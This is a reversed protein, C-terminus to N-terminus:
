ALPALGNMGRRLMDLADRVSQRQIADRGARAFQHRCISYDTHPGCIALCVTGVPKEETGGGPGAIGTIALAWDCGSVRRAGQAMAAAVEVSVAGHQEFLVEPVGLQQQKAQDSYTVWGHSFVKSAGAVGTIAAALRGGTCSEAVAVTQGAEQLSEVAIGAMTQADRGWWLSGLRQQLDQLTTELLHEAPRAPEESRALVSISVKDANATIGLRPNGGDVILERLHEEVVSEPAGATHLVGHALSSAMGFREELDASAGGDRYSSLCEVPPGPLCYLRTRTGLNVMFGWASGVFNRLPEAGAPMSAQALFAETAPHDHYKSYVEVLHEIAGEVPVPIVPVGLSAAVDDRTRDDATPGLGGTTLIVDVHDALETLLTQLEGVGDGITYMKSVHLGKLLLERAFTGANTDAIRGELLEEGISIVVATPVSIAESHVASM